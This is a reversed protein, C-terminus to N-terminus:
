LIFDAISTKLCANDVTQSRNLTLQSYDVLSYNYYHHNDLLYKACSQHFNGFKKLRMSYGYYMKNSKSVVKCSDIFDGSHLDLDTQKQSPCSKTAQMISPSQNASTQGFTHYGVDLSTYHQNRTTDYLVEHLEYALGGVNSSMTVVLYDCEALLFVDRLFYKLHKASYRSSYTGATLQEIPPHLFTYNRYTEKIPKILTPDDTTIFVRKTQIDLGTKTLNNFFQDVKTMYEDIPFMKAEFKKDTRRIHVGVIPSQFGLDAKSKSIFQRVQKAPRIIYQALIGIWWAMPNHKFQVVKYFIDTPMAYHSIRPLAGVKELLNGPSQIKIIRPAAISENGDFAKSWLVALKKDKVSLQCRSIPKFLDKYRRVGHRSIFNRLYSWHHLDILMTRNISYAYILCYVWHHLTSGMGAKRGDCLVMKANFCDKPNQLYNLRHRIVKVIQLCKKTHHDISALTPMRYRNASDISYSTNWPFLPIYTLHISAVNLQYFLYSIASASVLLVCFLAWTRNWRQSDALIAM